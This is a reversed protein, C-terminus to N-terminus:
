LIKWNVKGKIYDFNGKKCVVNGSLCVVNGRRCVFKRKICVVNGRLCVVKGWVCELSGRLIVGLFTWGIMSSSCYHCWFIRIKIFFFVNETLFVVSYFKDILLFSFPPQGEDAETCHLWISLYIQSQETPLLLRRMHSSTLIIQQWKMYSRRGGFNSTLIYPLRNSPWNKKLKLM